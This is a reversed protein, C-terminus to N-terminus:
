NTADAMEVILATGQKDALVKADYVETDNYTKAAKKNMTVTMEHESISNLYLGTDYVKLKCAKPARESVPTNTYCLIANILRTTTWSGLEETNVEFSLLKHRYVTACQHEDLYIDITEARIDTKLGIGKIAKLFEKTTMNNLSM